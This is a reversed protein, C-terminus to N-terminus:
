ADNKKKATIRSVNGEKIVNIVESAWSKVSDNHTILMIYQYKDAIKELLSHINELNEQAVRGTVEDLILSNLKPLISLQGLVVRLALAAATKEFGSGSSIDSFVGDKVIYFMIDNKDNIRIEVTFDCVDSLLQNIQANIVPLSDRLVMKGIGNRGVMNLYIRWHKVNVLEEEIQQILKKNGQIEKKNEEIEVKSRDIHIAYGDSATKKSRIIAEINKLQIDLKNNKDIAEHNKNYENKKDMSEKYENRLREVKVEALSRKTQLQNVLEYQGRAAKATAIREQLAKIESVLTIGDSKQQELLKQMEAIKATNDVNDYKRGCTPCYESKQLTEIMQSTHSYDARLTALKTNLNKDEEILADFDNSVFNVEGIENLKKDIIEIGDSYKKGESIIAELKSDLTAIDIKLIDQDISEKASVLTKILEENKEIEGNLESRTKETKDIYELLYANREELSNIQEKLTDVDYHRSILSPNIISNFHERAIVDKEELPILGIWKSLLRGRDAEKKEILDDLNSSTACIIMDFDSENGIADKIVKNTKTNNEEQENEIDCDSLEELTGGLVHYYEVKQVTKSRESRKVSSPRKLTRKIIYDQGDICICGEVSAVTAETLHKNFVKDLTPCKSTKGFLLFHILDIGLTSKGSQNNGNLLVIGKLTQFDFFNDQGYSLFNSWKVWKISYERNKDMVKYELKSNIEADIKKIIDFNCDQINYESIYKKFLKQQFMPDQINEIIDKAVSLPEGNANILVFDPVIKIQSKPVGYKESMRGAIEKEVEKSYDYPSTTWKIKLKAKKNINLNM